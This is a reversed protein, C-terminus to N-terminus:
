TGAYYINKLHLFEHKLNWSVALLNRIAKLYLADNQIQELWQNMVVILEFADSM